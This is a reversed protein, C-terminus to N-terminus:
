NINRLKVGGGHLSSVVGMCWHRTTKKTSSYVQQERKKKKKKGLVDVVYGVLVSDM